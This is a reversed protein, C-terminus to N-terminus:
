RPACREAQPLMDSGKRRQFHTWDAAHTVLGGQFKSRMNHKCRSATTIYLTCLHLAYLVAHEQEHPINHREASQMGHSSTNYSLLDAVQLARVDHLSLNQDNTLIAAVWRLNCQKKCRRRAPARWRPSARTGTCGCSTRRTSRAAAARASRRSGWTGGAAALVPQRRARHPAKYLASHPFWLIGLIKKQLSAFFVVKKPGEEKIQRLEANM